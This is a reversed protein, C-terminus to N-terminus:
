EDLKGLLAEIDVQRPLLFDCIGIDRLEERLNEPMDKCVEIFRDLFRSVKGTDSLKDRTVILDIVPAGRYIITVSSTDIIGKSVLRRFRGEGLIGLKFGGFFVAYYVKESNDFRDAFEAESGCLNWGLRGGKLDNLVEVSSALIPSSVIVNACSDGEAAAEDRRAIVIGRSYKKAREPALIVSCEMRGNRLYSKAQLSSVIYMDCGSLQEGGSFYRWEVEGCGRSRLFDSFADFVSHVRLSDFTAVGVVVTSHAVDEEKILISGIALLVIFFFVFFTAWRGMYSSMMSYDIQKFSSFKM